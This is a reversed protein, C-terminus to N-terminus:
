SIKELHRCQGRYKFGECTCTKAEPDLFYVDGRSGVVRVLSSEAAAKFPSRKLELFKRRARDITLPTKLYIPTETGHKIYAVAKSGDFLYTHNYAPNWDTVEQMVIM